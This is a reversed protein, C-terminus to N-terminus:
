RAGTRRRPTRAPSRLHGTRSKPQRRHPARVVPQAFRVMLSQGQASDVRLTGGTPGDPQELWVDCVEPVIYLAPIGTATDADLTLGLRGDAGTEVTMGRLTLEHGAVRHDTDAPVLPIDGSLRPDFREGPNLVEVCVHEGVHQQAFDRFFRSWREDPVRQSWM